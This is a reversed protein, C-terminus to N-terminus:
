HGQRHRLVLTPSQDESLPEGLNVACCEVNDVRFSFGVYGGRQSRVVDTVDVEYPFAVATQTVPVQLRAILTGANFDNLDLSGNGVYGYLAIPVAAMGLFYSAVHASFSLTASGLDDPDIARPAFEVIVRAESLTGRHFSLNDAPNEILDPAGDRPSGVQAGVDIVWGELVPLRGGKPGKQPGNKSMLRSTDSATAAVSRIVPGQPTPATPVANGGCASIFAVLVAVSLSTIFMRM